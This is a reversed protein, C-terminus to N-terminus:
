VECGGSSCKNNDLEHADKKKTNHYYMTKVGLKHAYKMDSIIDEVSVMENDYLEPNYFVNSSIAKDIWKQTIAVHKIFDKNINRDYAYDYKDSLKVIDPAYQKLLVGQRDKVTLGEKIPEISSTQNSGISSSESPPRQYEVHTTLEHWNELSSRFTEM